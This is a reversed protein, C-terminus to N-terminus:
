HWARLWLELVLMLWTRHAAELDGSRARALARRIPPARFFRGQRAGPGFLLDEAWAGLESALWHYAPVPFGQKPRNLIAAPLRPRCFERLIRKSAYGRRRDGVRWALPLRAAWEVLRRDLFPERLELSVAMSMRDAKMLLDETLWAGSYIQQLQDIPHADGCGDYWDEILGETSRPRWQRNWLAAKETERWHLTAHYRQGALARRWGGEGWARLWSAARGAAPLRGLRRRLGAPLAGEAGALRSLLAAIREMNYGGLIEDSGEGSLVVKVQDRALACVRHLPISALDAMPEDAYRVFEPLFDLFDGQTIRVEHHRSGIHAAAQRAFGSEDFARPDAFSVSFTHFDRHGLEVAAAAVASSDLGGSLLVGVPVDAALLRREVASLFLGAFEGVYDRGPAEPEAAFGLSWYTEERTRGSGLDLTLIRGPPLKRIGQWATRPGPVFRLTLYDHLAQPDPEPRREMGALIAKIESAFYLGEPQESYYLPKVGFRDRVLHVRDNAPDHICFAFMGELRDLMALGEREYLRLVVETDSHTLFHEGERLLRERLERYNYIEGNFVIGAGTRGRMPQHGGALDIIALRRMAFAFGDASWLGEDDPGRHVISGNMRAARRAAEDASFRGALGVIGCM